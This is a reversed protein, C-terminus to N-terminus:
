PPPWDFGREVRTKRGPLITVEIWLSPHGECGVRVTPGEDNKRVSWTYANGWPDTDFSDYLFHGPMEAERWHKLAATSSEHQVIDGLDVRDHVMGDLVKEWETLRVKARRDLIQQDDEGIRIHCGIWALLLGAVLAAGFGIRGSKTMMSSM